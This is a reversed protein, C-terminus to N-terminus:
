VHTLNSSMISFKLVSCTYASVYKVFLNVDDRFPDATTKERFVKWRFRIGLKIRLRWTSDHCNIVKTFKGVMHGKKKRLRSYHRFNGFKEGTPIANSIDINQQTLMIHSLVFLITIVQHSSTSITVELLYLCNNCWNYFNSTSCPFPFISALKYM